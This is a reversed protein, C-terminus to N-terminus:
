KWLSADMVWGEDYPWGDRWENCAGECITIRGNGVGM